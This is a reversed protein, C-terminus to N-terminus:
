KREGFTLDLTLVSSCQKPPITFLKDELQRTQIGHLLLFLVEAVLDAVWGAELLVVCVLFEWRSSM